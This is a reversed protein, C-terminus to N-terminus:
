PVPPLPCVGASHPPFVLRCALSPQSQVGDWLAVGLEAAVPRRSGHLLWDRAASPPGPAPTSQTFVETVGEHPQVHQACELEPSRLGACGSCLQCEERGQISYSYGTDNLYQTLAEVM